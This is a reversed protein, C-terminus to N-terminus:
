IYRGTAWLAAGLAVANNGTRAVDIRAKPNSLHVINDSQFIFNAAPLFLDYANTLGGTVLIKQPALLKFINAVADGLYAGFLSFNAISERDGFRARSEEKIPDLGKQKFFQGSVFSEVHNFNGCSCRALHNLSHLMTMHGFEFASNRYGRVLTGKYMYGAGCGTGLSILFLSEPKNDNQWGFFWEGLAALNGDNEILAPVGYRKSLFDDVAFTPNNYSLVAKGNIIPAPLAIGFSKPRYFHFLPNILGVLGKQMEDRTLKRDDYRFEDMSSPLIAVTRNEGEKIVVVIRAKSGGIDIGFFVDREEIDAKKTLKLIIGM